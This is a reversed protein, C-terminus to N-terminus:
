RKALVSTPVFIESLNLEENGTFILEATCGEIGRQVVDTALIKLGSKNSRVLDMRSAAIELTCGELVSYHMAEVQLASALSLGGRPSEPNMQTVCVVIFTSVCLLM